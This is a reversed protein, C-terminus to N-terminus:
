MWPMWGHYMSALNSESIAENIIFNVQGETSLAIGSSGLYKSVIGNLRNEIKLIDKIANTEKRETDSRKGDLRNYADNNKLLPDYVLPRLYSLLTLREKQLVRLVIECHKRFPGEIGLVGMADIMNHTLRFPVTEPVTLNEGKNFLMNYDVHFTEGTLVDILINECHRDGLGVIYGIISMVATTRIFSLRANYFNLPTPFQRRFYDGLAPYFSKVLRHYEKIRDKLPKKDNFSGIIERTSPTKYNKQAYESSIINKFTRLNPVWEPLSVIALRSKRFHCACSV